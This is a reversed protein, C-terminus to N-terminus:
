VKKRLLMDKLINIYNYVKSIKKREGGYMYSTQKFIFERYRYVKEYEDFYVGFSSEKKLIDDYKDIVIEEVNNIRDILYGNDLTRVYINEKMALAWLGINQNVSPAFDLHDEIIVYEKESDSFLSNKSKNDNLIEDITSYVDTIACLKNSFDVKDEDGKIRHIMLINTRDENLLMYKPQTKSEHIFKFGHDSFVFTHDFDDKNFNDFIVDFSKATDQYAKKEGYTTYGNDDFSWHYDPLGIFMFHNDELKTNKLYKDLDYDKNHINMNTIHEPFMGTERENPNSFFTMKYNKEIFLDYITKLEKRLFYRPWKVRTTCGNEFPIKGTAFSALGRPTDPGQSFCNRYFTGGIKKLSIDLPASNEINQNFISLRNPRIMDIFVILVRM